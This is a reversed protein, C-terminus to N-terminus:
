NPLSSKERRQQHFTFVFLVSWVLAAALLASSPLIQEFFLLPRNQLLIWQAASFLVIFWTLFVPNRKKMMLAVLGALGLGASLISLPQRYLFAYYLHNVAGATVLFQLWGQYLSPSTLATKRHHWGQHVAAGIVGIGISRSSLMLLGYPSKRILSFYFILQFVFAFSFFSLAADGAFSAIKKKNERDVSSLQWWIFLSIFFFFIGKVMPMFLLVSIATGGKIYFNTGRDYM